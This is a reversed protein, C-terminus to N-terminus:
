FDYHIATNENRSAIGVLSEDDDLITEVPNIITGLSLLKNGQKDYFEIGYFRNDANSDFCVVVRKLNDPIKYDTLQYDSAERM